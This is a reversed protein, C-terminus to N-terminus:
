LHLNRGGYQEGNAQGSVARRTRSYPEVAPPHTSTRVARRRPTHRGRRLGPVAAEHPEATFPSSSPPPSPAPSPSPPPAPAPSPSLSPPISPPPLPSTYPEPKPHVTQYRIRVTDQGYRRSVRRPLPVARLRYEVQMKKSMFKGMIKMMVNIWTPTDTMLLVQAM